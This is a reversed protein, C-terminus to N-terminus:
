RTWRRRYVVAALVGAAAWMAYTGPEPIAVVGVQFIRYDNAAIATRTMEVRGIGQPAPVDAELASWILNSNGGLGAVTFSGILNGGTVADYVEGSFPRDVSFTLAFAAVNESFTLTLKAGGPSANGRGTMVHDSLADTITAFRLTGNSDSMGISLNASYASLRDAYAGTKTFILGGFDNSFSGLSGVGSVQDDVTWVLRNASGNFGALASAFDAYNHYDNTGARDDILGQVKTTNGTTDQELPNTITLTAASLVPACACWAFVSLAAARSVMLRLLTTNMRTIPTPLTRVAQPKRGRRCGRNLPPGKGEAEAESAVERKM